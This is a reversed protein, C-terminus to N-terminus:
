GIKKGISFAKGIFKGVAYHTRIEPNYTFVHIQNDGLDGAGPLEREIIHKPM